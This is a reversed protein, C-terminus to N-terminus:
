TPLPRLLHLAQTWQPGQSLVIRRLAPIAGAAIIASHNESDISINYLIALAAEVARESGEEHIVKVLLFIGGEVAVVRTFDVVGESIIRNLEIVAAKQAEPSFSTKIHKVLRPVTEYLIGSEIYVSLITDLHPEIITLFELISSAERQLNPSPTKLIEVLRAIVAFDIVDKGTTSKSVATVDMNGVFQITAYPSGMANLGKKSGNVPGDGANNKAAAAALHADDSFDVYALGRSKGTFKNKLIRVATVGGVDSFFDRLHEYIAELDLNSIFATCQTQTSTRKM